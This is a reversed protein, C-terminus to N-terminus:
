HRPPEMRGTCTSGGPRVAAVSFTLQRFLNVLAVREARSLRLTTDPPSVVAKLATALGITQLKGWLRCKECSVCDMLTTINRVKRKMESVLEAAAPGQLLKSENFTHSCLLRENFFEQLDALLAQDGFYVGGHSVDADDVALFTGAARTLARAVFLYTTYLNRLRHQQSLVRKQLDECDPADLAIVHDAARAVANTAKPRTACLHVSISTHLGSVLEYFVQHEKCQPSVRESAELVAGSGSAGGSAAVTTTTTSTSTTTTTTPGLERFCNEQYIAHWVRSGQYGTFGEPNLRLDFFEAEEEEFLSPTPGFFGTFFAPAGGRAVDDVRGDRFRDLPMSFDDPLRGMDGDNRFAIPVDEDSCRCVACPNSALGCLTTVGWYPCQRKVNARFYRFYPRSVIRDLLELLPAANDEVVSANCCCYESPPRDRNFLSAFSRQSQPTSLGAAAAPCIASPPLLTAVVLIVLAVGHPM